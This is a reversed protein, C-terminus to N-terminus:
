RAPHSRPAGEGRERRRLDAPVAAEVIVRRGNLPHAFEVRTAHLLYGGDGPLGPQPLPRGGIGYLPDGVLPHGAWALHIRVQHPRGTVIEVDFLTVDGRREIVQAISRAPRGAPSAAHVAGLRPHPLSGIAAAIELREWSPDDAGLARYFRLVDHGRWARALTAAAARSRAFVVVGSTHRGLRHVPRVGAYRATVLALLTHQLFGGAPMTPLGSPKAVVLVAEDEHLVEFGLPVEPEDWPPRHWVLVQGARLVTTVDAAAGDIEIEGRELRAMWEQASSHLRTQSLHAVVSRGATSPTVQERYSWGRNVVM